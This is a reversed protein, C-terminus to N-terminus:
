CYHTSNIINKNMQLQVIDVDPLARIVKILEILSIAAFWNKGRDEGYLLIEHVANRDNGWGVYYDALKPNPHAIKNLAQRLHLPAYTKDELVYKYGGRKKVEEADSPIADKERLAGVIKISGPVLDYDQESRVALALARLIEWGKKSTRLMVLKYDSRNTLLSGGYRSGWYADRFKQCVDDLEDASKHWTGRKLM